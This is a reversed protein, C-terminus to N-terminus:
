ALSSIAARMYDVLDLSYENGEAQKSFEDLMALVREQGNNETLVQAPTRGELERHITNLWRQTEREKMVTYWIQELKPQPPRLLLLSNIIEWALPAGLDEWSAAMMAIAQLSDAYAVVFDPGAGIGARGPAIAWEYWSLGRTRHTLKWDGSHCLRQSLELVIQPDRVVRIDNLDVGTQQLAREFLGFLVEGQKLQVELNAPAAIELWYNLHSLIFDGQGAENGCMLVTSSFLSGAPLRLLRGLLLPRKDGIDLDLPEKLLVLESQGQLCDKIKLCGAEMGQVEFIGLHSANLAELCEGLSADLASGNEEMYERGITLGESDQMDFWLWDSFLPERDQGLSKQPCLRLFTQRAERRVKRIEGTYAQELKMKVTTVLRNYREFPSEGVALGAQAGLCCHKYKEGSGCPCPDNRGIKATKM